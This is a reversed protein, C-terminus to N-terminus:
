KIDHLYSRVLGSNLILKNFSPITANIALQSMISKGDLLENPTYDYSLVSEMKPNFAEPNKIADEIQEASLTNFLNTCFADIYGM